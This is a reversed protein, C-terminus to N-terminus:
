RPHQSIGSCHKESPGKLVIGTHLWLTSVPIDELAQLANQLTRSSKSSLDSKLAEEQLCGIFAARSGM